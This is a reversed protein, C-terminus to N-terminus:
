GNTGARRRQRDGNTEKRGDHKAVNADFLTQNQPSLAARVDSQESKRLAMLQDRGTRNREWVARAAATDGKQRDARAEQRAPKLTARLSKREAAYKGHITKLRAKEADTLNIGRLAGGAGREGRMGHMGRMEHRAGTVPAASQAQAFSASSVVSAVVLAIVRSKRMIGGLHQRAHDRM